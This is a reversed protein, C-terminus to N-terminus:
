VNRIIGCQHHIIYLRSLRPPSYPQHSQPCTYINSILLCILRNQHRELHLWGTFQINNLDGGGGLKLM